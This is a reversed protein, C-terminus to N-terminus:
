SRPLGTGCPRWPWGRCAATLAPARVAVGQMASQTHRAHQADREQALICRGSHVAPKARTAHVAHMIDMSTMSSSPCGM